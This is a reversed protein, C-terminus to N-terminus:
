DAVDPIWNGHFGYPVRVPLHVSAVTELTAADVLVLDSAERDGDYVYGILVGHDEAAATLSPVFVFEGAGARSGFSRSAQRKATFDHKYLISGGEQLKGAVSYGYRHRPRHAARRRPSSRPVTTSTNRWCREPPSTSPGADLSPSGREPRFTRVAFMRPHRVVDLVVSDGDDYANLPHFVYCHRARVLACTPAARAPCCVSAPRITPTGAPLPVRARSSRANRPSGTLDFTVPLDYVVVHRETLAFDHMM